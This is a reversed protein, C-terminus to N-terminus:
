SVRKWMYCVIYPQLNNHSGGGGGLDFNIPDLSNAGTYPGSASHNAFKNNIVGSGSFVGSATFIDSGYTTAGHITFSGTTNPIEALTLTHAKEGGTKEVTSFDSDSANFGVPVRGAGWAVWTGGFFTGPNTSNVSMYISGVPYADLVSSGGGSVVAVASGIAQETEIAKQVESISEFIDAFIGKEIDGITASVKEGDDTFTISVSDVTSIFSDGDIVCTVRDGCQWDAYFLTNVGERVDVSYIETASNKRIEEAAKETLISRVDDATVAPKGDKAEQMQVSDKIYGEFRGFSNISEDQKAFIVQQNEGQDGSIAWIANKKPLKKKKRWKLVNGYDPSFVVDVTKDRRQRVDFEMVGTEPSWLIEPIVEGAGIEACVDDLAKLRYAYMDGAPDPSIQDVILGDIRRGVAMATAGANRDVYRRIAGEVSDVLVDQITDGFQLNIPDPLALRRELLSSMDRGQAEWTIIGQHTEDSTEDASEVVGSFFLEGNRYIIIGEGIDLPIRSLGVSTISWKSPEAWRQEIKLQTFKDILQGRKGEDDRKYITYEAGVM